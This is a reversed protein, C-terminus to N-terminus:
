SEGCHNWSETKKSENGTIDGKMSDHQWMITALYRCKKLEKMKEGLVKDCQTGASVRVRYPTAFDIVEAEARDKSFFYYSGCGSSFKEWFRIM